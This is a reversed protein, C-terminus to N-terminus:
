EYDFRARKTMTVVDDDASRRRRKVPGVSLAPQSLPFEFDFSARKAGMIDSDDISNRRRKALRPNLKLQTDGSTPNEESAGQLSPPNDKFLRAPSESEPEAKQTLVPNKDEGHGMFSRRTEAPKADLDLQAVASALNEEPLSPPNDRLLSEPSKSKSKAKKTMFANNEDDNQTLHRRYKAPTTGLKLQAVANALDEESIWYWQEQFALSCRDTWLWQDVFYKKMHKRIVDRVNDLLAYVKERGDFEEQSTENDLGDSSNFKGKQELERIRKYLYLNKLRQARTRYAAILMEGLQIRKEDELEAETCDETYDDQFKSSSGTAQPSKKGDGWRSPLQPDTSRPATSPRSGGLWGSEQM